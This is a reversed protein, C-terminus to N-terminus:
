EKQCRVSMGTSRCGEVSTQFRHDTTFYAGYSSESTSNSASWYRGVNGVLGLSGMTWTLYGAAPYWTTYKGGPTCGGYGDLFMGNYTRDFGVYSGSQGISKYWVGNHGGNAVRWGPPCPDYISKNNGSSVWLTNDRSSYHWDYPESSAYVFTTPHSTVYDITGTSSNASVSSPWTITSEARTNDSISSSGLFPDKRGWQYLLGLANVSGYTASTAGLNRDMVTGANNYYEQGEPQDTLWIHWSWLISGNANKAAIVANGEKYIDATSFFIYDDSYSVSKVLDGVSPKQSTGFSEWLIDASAVNDISESTNGRVVKFVYIGKSSVIYSNASYPNSLDKPVIFSIIDGYVYEAGQKVYYRSHYEINPILGFISEEFNGNANLKSTLAINHVDSTKITPNSSTSYLLGVEIVNPETLSFHGSLTVHTHSVDAVALRAEVSQTHFSSVVGYTYVEHQKVYYRYYHITSNQMDDVECIFDGSSNIIGTLNVSKVGESDITLDSSLSSYILGVELENVETLSFNGSFTVRTQTVKDIAITATVCQTHFHNVTGYCYEEGQKIYYRYYYTTNHLLKDIRYTIVMSDTEESLIVKNVGSTTVKPNTSSASYLLGVEIVDSETLLISGSFSATTQTVEGVTIEPEVNHMTFDYVNGFVYEGNQVVFYCYYYKKGNYLGTVKQTFQGESNLIDNLYFEQAGSSLYSSSFDNGSASYRIGVKVSSPETIDVIGLFTATTQTIDGVKIDPEVLQTTFEKVNGFTYKGNQVVFYCYYYKTGYSLGNVKKTFSGNADMTDTVYFEAAAYPLYSSTFDDNETSYRIGVKIIDSETFSVNGSFTATTQTTEAIDINPAVTQTIFDQVSGFTYKGAQKIYYAYYYKTGHLLGTEKSNFNGEGDLADKFSVETASSSLSSSSFDTSKTSYRVGIEVADPESLEAKGKFTATTQTIEGTSITVPIAETTFEQTDGYIYSGNQYTYYSYRYQTGHKLDKVTISYNGNEDIDSFSKKITDGGSVPWYRVGVSIGEGGALDINGSFTATTQTLNDVGISVSIPQTTFEQANGYEYSSNQKIYTRYYYKTAYALGERKYEFTETSDSLNITTAGSFSDYKSYQIGVNIASRDGWLLSTTGKFTASSTGTTVEDVNINVDETKFYQTSGYQCIGNKYLFVTYHYRTDYPLGTYTFSFENNSGVTTIKVKKANSVNLTKDTTTYIFGVGGDDMDYDGLQDVDLTGFFTVTSATVNGLKLTVPGKSQSQYDKTVTVDCEAVFGGDETEAKIKARGPKIGRVTGDNVTAISEDTSSWTVKTNTADSPKLFATLTETRNELIELRSRSLSIGTVPIVKAVVTVKCTASLGEPTNATIIAEGPSIGEILCEDGNAHAVAISENSSSWEVTSDCNAPNDKEVYAITSGFEGVLITLDEETLEISVIKGPKPEETCAFLALCLVFLLIRKMLINNQNTVRSM